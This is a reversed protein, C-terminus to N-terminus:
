GGVGGREAGEGEVGGCDEGQALGPFELGHGEIDVFRFMRELHMERINIM